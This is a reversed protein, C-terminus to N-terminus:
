SAPVKQRSAAKAEHLDRKLRRIERRLGLVDDPLLMGFQAGIATGCTACLYTSDDWNVDRELDLFPGINGSEDPTNGKGCVMCNPPTQTMREVMHMKAEEDIEEWLTM